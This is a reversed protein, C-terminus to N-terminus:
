ASDKFALCVMAGDKFEQPVDFDGQDPFILLGGHAEMIERSLHLGLGMGYPKTSVFPKALEETPMSFGPGNDAVIITTYGHLEKSISFYIEKDETESYELWWISNDILNMLAALVLNEACEIRDIGPFYEFARRARIKHVKLRFEVNFLAQSLLYKPDVKKKGTNRILLGYGELLQSLHKVLAVIRKSPKDNQTVIILEKIVKDVEHIVISLNLGAGASRLLIETMSRYDNQIKHIYKKVERKLDEDKIKREIVKELEDLSAVVPEPISETGYFKRVKDKDVNRMTEVINLSYLIAKVFTEYAENEVFGERNTKEILDESAERSLNIAGLIINNSIRKVPVNVRRIDLSLWDNGPDGYENIRIGDRYVRIGGNANLYDRLGRKDQVGLSLVRPTRDFIVGEFTVPGMKSASLDIAEDEDDVMKLLNKIENDKEDLSRGNLKKMAPFPTFEYKFSTIVKGEMRCNFRYLAYQSVEDWSMLGKIWEKEDVDFVVFFSEPTDFPSSLANTSRYVDRVMGRTWPAHLSSITIRTGTKDGIFVEPKRTYVSVPVDDLYKEKAFTRWDIQLYVEDCDKQRTVLEIVNGLKHAGFRGIGKEGLPLRGFRHSRIRKAFLQTKYDSGPEMWVNKVIEPDMGIGDDEVVISGAADDSVKSMTIQVFNADADYSNKALELLAISPNKILQDGLQLLLRARPKFVLEQKM